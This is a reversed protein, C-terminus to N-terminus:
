GAIGSKGCGALSKARIRSFAARFREAPLYDIGVAVKEGNRTSLPTPDKILDPRILTAIKRRERVKAPVTGDSSAFFFSV